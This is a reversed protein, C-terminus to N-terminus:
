KTEYMARNTNVIARPRRSIYRFVFHIFIFLFFWPVRTNHTVPALRYTYTRAIDLLVSIIKSLIDFAELAPGCNIYYSKTTVPLHLYFFFDYLLREYQFIMPAHFRVDSGRARIMNGATDVCYIIFLWRRNYEHTICLRYPVGPPISKKKDFRSHGILIFFFLFFYQEFKSYYNIDIVILNYVRM